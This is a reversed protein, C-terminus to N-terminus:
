SFVCAYFLPMSLHLYIVSILLLVHSYKKLIQQCIIGCNVAKLNLISRKGVESQVTYTHFDDKQQTNHQHILENEVFYSYFAPPLRSRYYVYVCCLIPWFTPRLSECM